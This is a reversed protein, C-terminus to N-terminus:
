PAPVANSRTAASDRREKRWQWPEIREAPPLAWLGVRGARAVQELEYLSESNAYEAYFWAAGQRVLEAGAEKADVYVHAVVRGYRDVDYPVVRVQRDRVLDILALKAQWGYPQEREPADVEALRIEMSRGRVDVHLTDGDTVWRVVGM